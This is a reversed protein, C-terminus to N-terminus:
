PCIFFPDLFQLDRPGREHPSPAMRKGKTPVNKQQLQAEKPICYPAYTQQCAKGERSDQQFM